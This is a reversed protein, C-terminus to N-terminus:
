ATTSRRAHLAAARPTRRRRRVAAQVRRGEAEGDAQCGAPGGRGQLAQVAVKQDAGCAIRCGEASLRSKSAREHRAICGRVCANGRRLVDRPRGRVGHTAASPRTACAARQAHHAREQRVSVRAGHRGRRRGPPAAGATVLSCRDALAACSARRRHWPTLVQEDGLRGEHGGEAKITVKETKKGLEGQWVEVEYDGPPLDTIKFNGDADTVAYYPQDMSLWYAHMWPHADCKVAIPWEAKEVKWDVKKQFKPM